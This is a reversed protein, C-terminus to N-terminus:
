LCDPPEFAPGATVAVEAAFLQSSKLWGRVRPHKADSALELRADFWAVLDPRHDLNVDRVAVAVPKTRRIVLSATDIQDVAFDRAGLIAVAVLGGSGLGVRHSPCAPRLIGRASRSPYMVHADLADRTSMEHVLGVSSGAGDGNPGGYPTCQFKYTFPQTWDAAGRLARLGFSLGCPHDVGSTLDASVATATPVGDGDWDVPGVTAATTAPIDCKSDTYSFLESTAAGLGAPESLGPYGSTNREELAGPTNGGTPLAETSFDLRACAGGHCHHLPRCDGDVACSIPESSGSEKSPSIGTFQYRYNMVSLYNPKWNDDNSHLCYKGIPTNTCASPSCDADVNCPPDVGGGHHIGLNHGLEHMFTGGVSFLNYPLGIDSARNGLSVIFDNGSIEAIGSEGGV